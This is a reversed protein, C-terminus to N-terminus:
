VSKIETKSVEIPTISFVKEELAKDHSWSLEIRVKEKDKKAVAEIEFKIIPSPKLTVLDDGSQICVTEQRLGNILEELSEIVKERRIRQTLSVEKKSM